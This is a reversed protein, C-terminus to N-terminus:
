ILRWDHLQQRAVSGANELEVEVRDMGIAGITSLASLYDSPLRYSKIEDPCHWAYLAAGVAIFCLGFYLVLLRWSVHAGSEGATRPQGFLERSLDLYHLVSENFLILYGVLPIAITLKVAPSNGIERLKTWGFRVPHV